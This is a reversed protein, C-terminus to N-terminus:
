FPNSGLASAISGIRAADCRYFRDFPQRLAGPMADSTYVRLLPCRVFCDPLLVWWGLHVGDAFRYTDFLLLRDRVL